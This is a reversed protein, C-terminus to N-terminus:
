TEHAGRDWMGKGADEQGLLKELLTHLVDPQYTPTHRVWYEAFLLDIARVMRDQNGDMQRLVALARMINLTLPPFNPPLGPKM